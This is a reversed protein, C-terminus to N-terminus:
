TPLSKYLALKAFSFIAAPSDLDTLNVNVLAIVSFLVPNIIQVVDYGRWKPLQWLIEMVYILTHLFSTSKRRLSVDSPYQRWNNGDSVITVEHGLQRLASGLTWHVNSFEGLLLIKM